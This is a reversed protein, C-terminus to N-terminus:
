LEWTRRSKAGCTGLVGYILSALLYSQQRGWFFHHAAWVPQRQHRTAALLPLLVRALNRPRHNCALNRLVCLRSTLM